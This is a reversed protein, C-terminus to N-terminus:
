APLSCWGEVMVMVEEEVVVVVVEVVLGVALVPCLFSLQCSGVPLVALDLFCLSSPLRRSAPPGLAPLVVCAAM